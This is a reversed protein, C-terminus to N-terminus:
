IQSSQRATVKGWTNWILFPKSPISAEGLVEFWLIKTTPQGHYIWPKPPKFFPPTMKRQNQRRAGNWLRCLENQWQIGVMWAILSCSAVTKAFFGQRVRQWVPVVNGQWICWSYLADLCRISKITSSKRNLGASIPQIVPVCGLLDVNEWSKGCIWMRALFCGIELLSALPIQELLM